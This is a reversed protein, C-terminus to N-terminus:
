KKKKSEEEDKTKIIEEEGLPAGHSKESGEFNPSGFGIKTRCCIITPKSLEARGQEIAKKIAVPDHGDIDPIVQWGYAEFRMPTNDRFWGSVQGDISIQNDDWFVILKSTKSRIHM